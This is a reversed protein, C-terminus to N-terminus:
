AYSRRKVGTGHGTRAYYQLTLFTYNLVCRIVCPVTNIELDFGVEFDDLMDKEVEVAMNFVQSNTQNFMKANNLMILVDRQFEALSNLQKNDIKKKITHLDM